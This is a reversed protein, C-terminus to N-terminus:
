ATDDGSGEKGMKGRLWEYSIMCGAKTYACLGYTWFSWQPTYQKMNGWEREEKDVRMGNIVYGIICYLIFAVFALILILSGTSLGDASLGGGSSLEVGKHCAYASKIRMEHFCEDDDVKGCVTQLSFPQANEDCEWIINFKRVKGNCSAGTEYHFTWTRPDDRNEKFLPAQEGDDWEALYYQCQGNSRSFYVSQYRQGNCLAYSMCPTYGYAFDGDVCQIEYGQAGQLSMYGGLNDDWQCSSTFQIWIPIIVLYLSLLCWVAM